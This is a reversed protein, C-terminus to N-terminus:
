ARRQRRRRGALGVALGFLALGVGSAAADKDGPAAACGSVPSDIGANADGDAACGSLDCQLSGRASVDGAIGPPALYQICAEVDSAGVYQGNCFIAGSPQSCQLECGGELSAFCQFDCAFNVQTTCSGTCCQNCHEECNTAPVACADNCHIDCQAKAQNVCDANPQETQCIDITPQDCEEHCGAFCDLLAPDCQAVCQTGCDDVCATSATGTCGGSCGAELKIPTCSATCGGEVEIKCSIGGSFDFNGCPNEARASTAALAIPLFAVAVAAIRSTLKM